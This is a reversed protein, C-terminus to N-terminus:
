EASENTPYESEGFLVLSAINTELWWSFDSFADLISGM